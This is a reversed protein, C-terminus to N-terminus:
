FGHSGGGGSSGGGGGGGFGGGRSDSDSSTHPNYVKNRRTYTSKGHSFNVTAGIASLIESTEASRQKSVQRTIFYLILASLTIALLANTIHRMPQAIKNGILLSGIEYFAECACGFYDGKGALRYVNDTITNAYSKTIVKYVAGDSFIVLQRHNMDILFIVGSENGFLNHYIDGTAGEYDNSAIETTMFAVNGYDTIPLMYDLLEKEESSSLLDQEDNMYIKYDSGEVAYLREGDESGSELTLSDLGEEAARCLSPCFLTWIVLSLFLFCIWEKKNHRNRKPTM